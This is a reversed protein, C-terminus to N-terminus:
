CGKSGADDVSDDVGNTGLATMVTDIVENSRKFLSASISALLKKDNEDIFTMTKEMDNLDQRQQDIQENMDQLQKELVENKELLQKDEQLVENLDQDLQQDEEQLSELLRTLTEKETLSVQDKQNAKMQDQALQDLKKGLEDRNVRPKKEMIQHHYIHNNQNSSSLSKSRILFLTEFFLRSFSQLVLPLSPM